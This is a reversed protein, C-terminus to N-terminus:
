AEPGIIADIVSPGSEELAKEFAPVLEDDSEVVHPTAGHSKANLEFDVPPDFDMGLYDYDEHEGGLINLTNDKLIHYSRNDPIAVVLDIDYRAASYITHPYYLYSGDGVFGIVDRPDDTQREALAAGVAAPLGYGLGGGKNSIWQRPAFSRGSLMVFKSTISEDFVFADPATTAIAEVLGEKTVHDTDDSGADSTDRESWGALDERGQFERIAEMRRTREEDSVAGALNEHLQWMVQGPDGIISIDSVQNKGIHSQDNSIQIRVADDPGLRDYYLTSTPNQSDGVFLITDTDLIEDAIEQGPSIFSVWQDHGTPFNLESGMIQGHVRAGLREALAVAAEIADPGSRAIQDGAVLVPDTSDVLADRAEEITAVSGAGGDPISGLRKPERTTEALMVDMPLALFVPGTPPTLAIRFARRLMEPLADISKVEASWKTFQDTMEVLDGSLVPEQYQQDTSHNGATLVLPTGSFKSGHLNGIGHGLGAALHLNVVPAPNITPDDHAHYRRVSAYGAAMGVAIDEHLALIYELDRDSIADVIAVESTGPNGFVHQVGYQELTRAFLQAGTQTNATTM